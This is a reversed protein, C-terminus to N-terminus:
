MMYKKDICPKKCTSCSMECPTTKFKGGPLTQNILEKHNGKALELVTKKDLKLAKIMREGYDKDAWYCHVAHRYKINESCTAINRATNGILAEKEEENMIRYLDGGSHYCDDTPDDSPDDQWM